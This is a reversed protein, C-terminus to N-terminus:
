RKDELNLAANFSHWFKDVDLRCAVQIETGGGDFVTKGRETGCLGVRVCRTEFEVVDKEAVAAVALVDHLCPRKNKYVPIQEWRCLMESLTKGTEGSLQRYLAFDHESATCYKWTLDTVIMKIPIGSSFVIHAAEPDVLINWEARGSAINGGLVVIEAIQGKLAPYARIALALNTMPGLALIGFRGLTKGTRAITEVANITEITENEAEPFFQPLWDGQPKVLSVDAFWMEPRYLTRWDQILPEDAGACVPVLCGNKRALCKALKARLVSCRLVATIGAIPVGRVIAYQLAFADDIDDGIDTDIIWKMM